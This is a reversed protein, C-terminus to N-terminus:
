SIEQKDKDIDLVVVELEDDVAVLESPHNIRRTWSM